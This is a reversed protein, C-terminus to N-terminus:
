EQEIIKEYFLWNPKTWRNFFEAIDPDVSVGELRQRPSPKRTFM